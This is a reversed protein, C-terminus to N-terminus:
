RSPCEVERLAMAVQDANHTPGDHVPLKLVDFASEPNVKPHRQVLEGHPGVEQHGIIGKADRDARRRHGTLDQMSPFVM